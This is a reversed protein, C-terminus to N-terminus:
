TLNKWANQCHYEDRFLFNIFKYFKGRVPSSELTGGGLIGTDSTSHIESRLENPNESSV